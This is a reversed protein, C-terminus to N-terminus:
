IILIQDFYPRCTIMAIYHYCTISLIHRIRVQHLTIESARRAPLLRPHHCVLRLSIQSGYWPPPPPITDRSQLFTISFCSSAVIVCFSLMPFCCPSTLSTLYLFFFRSIVSYAKCSEQPSKCRGYNTLWRDVKKIGRVRENESMEAEGRPQKLPRPMRCACWACEPSM